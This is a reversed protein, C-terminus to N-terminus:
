LTLEECASMHHTSEQEAHSYDNSPIEVRFAYHEIAPRPSRRDRGANGIFPCTQCGVVLATAYRQTGRSKLETNFSVVSGLTYRRVRLYRMGPSDPSPRYFEMNPETLVAISGPDNMGADGPCGM